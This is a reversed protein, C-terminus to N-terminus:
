ELPVLTGLGLIIRLNNPRIILVIVVVLDRFHLHHSQETSITRKMGGFETSPDCRRLFVPRFRPRFTTLM